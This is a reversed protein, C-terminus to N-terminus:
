EPGGEGATVLSGPDPRRRHALHEQRYTVAVLIAQQRYGLFDDRAAEVQHRSGTSGAVQGFVADDALADVLHEFSPRMDDIQDLVALDDIDDVGGLALLRDGVRERDPALRQLM